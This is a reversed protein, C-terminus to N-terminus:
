LRWSVMLELGLNFLGHETPPYGIFTASSGLHRGFIGAGLTGYGVTPNSMRRAPSTRRTWRATLVGGGIFADLQPKSAEGGALPLHIFSGIRGYSGIEVIDGVRDACTGACPLNNRFGALEVGFSPKSPKHTWRILGGSATADAATATSVGVGFEIAARSLAQSAAKSPLGALVLLVAGLHCERQFLVSVNPHLIM